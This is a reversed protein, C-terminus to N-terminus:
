LSENLAQSILVSSFIFQYRASDPPFWAQINQMISFRHLSSRQLICQWEVVLHQLKFCLACARLASFNEVHLDETSFLKKWCEHDAHFTNIFESWLYGSSWVEPNESVLAGKSLTSVKAGPAVHVNSWESM